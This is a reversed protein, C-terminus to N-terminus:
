MADICVENTASDVRFPDPTVLNLKQGAVLEVSLSCIHLCMRNSLARGTQEIETISLNSLTTAAAPGYTDDGLHCPGHTGHSSAFSSSTGDQPELSVKTAPFGGRALYSTKRNYPHSTTWITRESTYIIKTRRESWRAANHWAPLLYGCRFIMTSQPWPRRWM